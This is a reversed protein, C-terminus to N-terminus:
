GTPTPLTPMWEDVTRAPDLVGEDILQFAVTGVLSTALHAVPFPADAEVPTGDVNEGVGVLVDDRGPIRVAAVAATPPVDVGGADWRISGPALAETLVAEIQAALEALAACATGLMVRRAFPANQPTRQGTNRLTNMTQRTEPQRDASGASRAITSAGTSLECVTAANDTFQSRGGVPDAYM